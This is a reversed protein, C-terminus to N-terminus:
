GLAAAMVDHVIPAAVTGGDGGADIIMAAVVMRPNKSPAFGTFWADVAQEPDQGPALPGQGAKPGLEATGTKGAVTVGPLAAAVGTGSSVVEEMLSRMTRAVHKSTVRVPKSDPGLAPDTVIPTPYRVGGSAITQAATAMELPTALVKGQGIASVGLDLDTPIDEPISPSPAGVAETARADYLAPKSNFGYREATGVLRKEGIKPGLPAFVSNCSKAFAQVFTGGCSEDHANAIERGGVSIGTLYPFSDDLRVVGAELAATTTIIKFTSGPPQPASFASGALALVAGTRADLAVVGGSRGGLAAVATRQLAPNIATRVADGAHPIGRALVRGAAAAAGAGAGIAVLEGGPRGALTTNFAQELGSIGVLEGAPFGRARQDAAAAPGPPGMQGAVDVAASGLPSTRAEPPGEALATGNRALIPGRRPATVRHGLREGPQLGPFVMYPQWDLKGGRYALPVEGRIAGFANMDIEVPMRVVDAGDVKGPGHPHGPDIRRVTATQRARLYAKTFEEVSYRAKADDSLEDYMQGYEENAWATAFRSAADTLPSESGIAAGAVFSIVAIVALPAARRVLRRRREQSFAQRRSGEM